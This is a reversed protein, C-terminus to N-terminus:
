MMYISSLSPCCMFMFACAARYCATTLCLCVSHCKSLFVFLLFSFSFSFFVDPDKTSPQQSHVSHGGVTIYRALSDSVSVLCGRPYVDLSSSAALPVSTGSQLPGEDGRTSKLSGQDVSVSLTASSFSLLCPLLHSSRLLFTGM